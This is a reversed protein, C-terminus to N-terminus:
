VRWKDNEQPSIGAFDEMKYNVQGKFGEMGGMKEQIEWPEVAM